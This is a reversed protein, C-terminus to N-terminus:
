TVEEIFASVVLFKRIVKDERKILLDVRLEAGVSCGCTLGMVSPVIGVHGTEHEEAQAFVDLNALQYCRRGNFKVLSHILFHRQLLFITDIGGLLFLVVRAALVPWDIFLAEFM